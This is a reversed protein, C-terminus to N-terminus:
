GNELWAREQPTLIIDAAKANSRMRDISRTGVIPFVTLDSCLVWALGIQAVTCGRKEALQEARHLRSLNAEGFYGKVAFPDLVQAAKEPEASKVKGSLMGRGLSSFAFVPMRQALYWNRAPAGQAGAISLSGDSGGWPDQMQECLGYNPSTARFPELGHQEAYRNAQAIRQWTWNSGGFRRVKGARFYENLVEVLDDVPVKANDRHLLYIDIVDTGLQEFSKEIDARLDQATVRDKGDYPHCGKTILVIRDRNGREMMWRGLSVESLGYNEATDFVTIGLDYVGDLLENVNEGQLMPEIACGFVIRSLPVPIGTLNEYKM